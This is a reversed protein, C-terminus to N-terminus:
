LYWVRSVNQFWNGTCWSRDKPILKQQLMIGSHPNAGHRTHLHKYNFNGTGRM